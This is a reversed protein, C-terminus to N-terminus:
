RGALIGRYVGEYARSSSEWGFDRAMGQEQVRRWDQPQAFLALARQLAHQLASVTPEPMVFGTGTVGEAGLKVNEVSDALGGTAHVVPLTGYAQSYMQNLGCPEFRSPMLFVDAGAEISHALAENFDVFVAVADPRRTAADRLADQLAPEGQGLM